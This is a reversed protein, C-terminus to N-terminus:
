ERVGGVVAHYHHGRPKSTACLESASSLRDLWQRTGSSPPASRSILFTARQVLRLDLSQWMIELSDCSRRHSRDQGLKSSREFYLFEEVREADDTSFAVCVRRSYNVVRDSLCMVLRDFASDDFLDFFPVVHACCGTM